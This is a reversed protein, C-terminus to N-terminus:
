VGVVSSGDLLSICKEFYGISPLVDDDLFFTYKSNGINDLGINRQVAASCIDTILYKIQPRSTLNKSLFEPDSSDVIVLEDDELLQPVIAGVLRNLM